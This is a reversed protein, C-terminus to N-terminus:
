TEIRPRLAALFEEPGRTNLVQRPELWARRAMTVGYRMHDLHRPQHADTSIVVPVGAQGCRRAHQDNIDLREPSANIELAVGARACAALVAEFDFEVAARRLLIRATLHGLIRLHPNEIARLLRETMAAPPLDFRSHLSGIVVDMEALVGNEMDLRGDALIDVEIGTFIRLPREPGGASPKRGQRFAADAARILQIHERARVENLGRAMALAQSHETIAIYQYGRAIAADAMEEITARGDSAVTHMHLDGRMDELRLLQPLGGAAAAELEGCSERLEPPIWALGLAHYIAEETEGAIRKKGRFLGYENLKLGAKVARGRLAVNHAQSGTFYQLGAGLSASDLWRLDVQLGSHLRVSTKEPGQGLVQEVGPLRLFHEGAQQRAAGDLRPGAALVDVDGITERGRRLSGAVTLGAIASIERMWDLVGHAASEAQSLLFRGSLKRWAAIGRLIKAESQAGMRPLGQLRGARALEEVEDVSAAHFHEFILAITKPGLGSIQLLDLMEPRYRQLLQERQELKGTSLMEQILALLGKGIGPLALIQRPEGALERMSQPCQDVADAGRRYSRIRFPDEGAIEMLDAAERLLRSIERNIM